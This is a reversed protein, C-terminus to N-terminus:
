SNELDPVRMVGMWKLVKEGVGPVDIHIIYVGSSIPVNAHNTLDWDIFPVESDKTFTKILAGGTNFIKITCTQPLNIMKVKNELRTEEYESYAYYPNPVINIYDLASLASDANFEAAVDATNFSYLPNWDNRSNATSSIDQFNSKDHSYKEYESSVRLRIRVDTSLFQSGETLIPMGVWMCSKWVKQQASSSGELQAKMFEGGDYAPMQGDLNQNEFVYIFHKGGMVIDGAGSTFSSSPNWLMDSGNFGGLWSDEGFAMNLREGTNVNIAYGPFYSFGDGTGDPKEDKGLSPAGRLRMKKVGGQSLKDDNQMEIVAARTWKSEDSTIVIDISSLNNIDTPLTTRMDYSVPEGFCDGFSVLGYPAFSGGLVSEFEEDDDIGAYDSNYTCNLADLAVGDDVTGSRIWNFSPNGDRDSIGSLWQKTSDDFTRTAELFTPSKKTKIKDSSNIFTEQNITLSLGWDLILQENRVKITTDSVYVVNDSMRTLSWSSNLLKDEDSIGTGPTFRLEFDDNPVSLPDIIKIDVPAGGNTYKLKNVINNALIDDESESEIDVILGGNGKGEERVILPNDGYKSNLIVGASPKHPIGTFSTISGTCSKRGRLYPKQQGDLYLPDSNNYDRYNNYAYSVVMFHYKKYNVLAVDGQAYADSKIQFTHQLGNDAGNVMEVPVAAKLDEDFNFNILRSVGDKIDCQSVLRAKNINELDEPGVSADSLQFVQYGQFRYFDDDKYYCNECIGDGGIDAGTGNPDFWPTSQGNTTSTNPVTDLYIKYNDININGDKEIYDENANNSSACNTVYLILEKDFEQIQVNPADPGDILRFCNDFLKQAKDDALRVLEVSQFPDGGPARAYVIGVTINNLAGPELTFPGAAQVFRRDGVDNGAIQETWDQPVPTGQTGWFLPDTDGPFTYNAPINGLGSATPDTIHGTGGFVFSTGDVWTGKMYNYFEIATGPDAAFSPGTGARTFHVYRSMGMRENDIIGDGYGVGLGAYPIGKESLALSVDTTLPNDKGDNDQYPGEFFDVGIAPSVGDSWPTAGSCEEDDVADGGYVYGFGRQVDCGAYDDGSCGIDADIYQGFYTDNLKTTGRNILEYNYFTMSNVEDSTAFAFAQARIEMGIPNGGSETHVNGKDNFVYWLNYDGFLSVAGGRERCDKTKTLDYGPYDGQNPEYDDSGGVNVYPALYHDYFKGNSSFLYDAHAPWEEFVQPTTYGPQIADKCSQDPCLYIARHIEAQQRTTEWFRDTADCVDATIEAPGYASVTKDASITNPNITLPGSWFDDDQHYLHAAAKLVLGDNEGGMWLSGAYIVIRGGGKPVEYFANGTSRDLFAFGSTEVIAKVNNYELFTKGTAPTCGAVKLKISSSNSKAGPQIGSHAVLISSVSLAIASLIYKNFKM